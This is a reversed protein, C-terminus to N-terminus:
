KNNNYYFCFLFLLLNRTGRESKVNRASALRPTQRLSSFFRTTPFFLSRSRLHSRRRGRTVRVLNRNPRREHFRKAAATNGPDSNVLLLQLLLQCHRLVQAICHTIGNPKLVGDGALGAVDVTGLALVGGSREAGHDDEDVGAAAAAM